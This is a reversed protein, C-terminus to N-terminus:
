LNLSQLGLFETFASVFKVPNQFDLSPVFSSDSRSIVPVSNLWDMGISSWIAGHDDFIVGSTRYTLKNHGNPRPRNQFPTRRLVSKRSVSDYHERFDKVLENSMFCDAHYTWAFKVALIPL